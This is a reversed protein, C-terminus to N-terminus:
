LFEFRLYLKAFDAIMVSFDYFFEGVIDFFSNFFYFFGSSVILHIERALGIDLINSAENFCHGVNSNNQKNISADM